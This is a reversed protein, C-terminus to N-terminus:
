VSSVVCARGLAPGGNTWEMTWQPYSADGCGYGKTVLPGTVHAVGRYCAMRGLCPPLWLLSLQWLSGVAGVCVRTLIFPWCLSLVMLEWQVLVGGAWQGVSISTPGSEKGRESTSGGEAHMLPPPSSWYLFQSLQCLGVAGCVTCGLHGMISSM